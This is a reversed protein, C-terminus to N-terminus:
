CAVVLQADNESNEVLLVAILSGVDDCLWWRKSLNSAKKESYVCVPGSPGLM